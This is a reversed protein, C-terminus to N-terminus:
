GRKGECGGGLGEVGESEGAAGGEGGGLALEVAGGETDSGECCFNRSGDGEKAGEVSPPGEGFEDLVKERETCRRVLKKAVGRCRRGRVKGGFDPLEANDAGAIGLVKRDVERFGFESFEPGLEYRGVALELM